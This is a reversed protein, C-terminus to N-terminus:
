GGSVRLPGGDLVWLGAFDDAAAENIGVLNRLANFQLTAMAVGRRQGGFVGYGYVVRGDPLVQIGGLEDAFNPVFGAYGSYIGSPAVNEMVQTTYLASSQGEENYVAVVIRDAPTVAVARVAGAATFVRIDGTADPNVVHIENGAAVYAIRGDALAGPLDGPDAVETSAGGAADVVYLKGGSSFAIQDSAGGKLGVARGQSPAPTISLAAVAGADIFAFGPEGETRWYIVRGDALFAPSVGHVDTLRRAVTADVGAAFIGEARTALDPLMGSTNVSFLIENGLPRAPWVDVPLVLNARREPTVLDADNGEGFFGSIQECGALVSVVLAGALLLSRTRM